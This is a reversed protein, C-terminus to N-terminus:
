GGGVGKWPAGDGIVFGSIRFAVLVHRDVSPDVVIRDPALPVGSDVIGGRPTSTAKRSGRITM